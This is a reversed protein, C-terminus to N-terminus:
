HNYVNVNFEHHHVYNQAIIACKMLLAAKIAM